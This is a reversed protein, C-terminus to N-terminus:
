NEGDENNEVPQEEANEDVSEPQDEPVETEVEAEAEPTQAEVPENVEEPVPQEEADDEAIDVEEFEEKKLHLKKMYRNAKQHNYNNKGMSKERRMKKLMDKLLLSLMAIILAVVLLISSVLLWVTTESGGSGKNDDGGDTNDEGLDIAQDIVSYDAFVTYSTDDTIQLYALQESYDNINYNYGTSNKDATEKNFPKFNASDYLSYTYYHAVYNKLVPYADIDAQSLEGSALYKDTLEKYYNINETSTAFGSLLGKGTLLEQYAKIIQKEYYDNKLADDSVTDYSYDFIVVSNETCGSDLAQREGSWLELRYSKNESGAHLVFNVTIWKGANDSNGEIKVVYNEDIDSYGKIAYATDFPLVEVPKVDKLVYYYKGNKYEYVKTGDGTVLFCNAETKDAKYYTQGKILDNYAVPNGDKDFYKATADKYLKTYNYVNARPKGEADEYLGDDRLTYLINELQEALNSDKDAKAKLVNGDQDYYFTYSPTKFTLLDKNASTDTLYVYAVAGASVKVKVSVTSYSDASVSQETGLFGYNKVQVKNYYVANKDFEADAAVKEFENSDNKIYCDKFNADTANQAVIYSERMKNVIVLPQSSKSGFIENWAADYGSSINKDFSTLVHNFWDNNKYNEFYKKNVLGAWDNTNSDDFPMSIQGNNKVYSSGGNVGTYNAPNAFNSEIRHIQNGYVDDFAKTEKDKDEGLTLSATHSGEGTYSFTTEDVSLTQMNAMSVWGARYSAADTDKIVTQGLSFDLSVTKANETENNIFVFCQVWGNFIDKKNEEEGVDTTIGTSDLTLTASNDKDASDKVTVTAATTGKMDSTKLWFSVITRSEKAISLDLSSTYAAGHTSLMLLVNNNAAADLKPLNEASKLAENLRAYFATDASKFEYGAKVYALLDGEVSLSTFNKPLKANASTNASAFGLLNSNGLTSLSSTYDDNDVTLGAKATSFDVANYDQESALDLLYSFSNSFRQNIVAGNREETDAVFIKESKDSLLTLATKDNKITQEDNKYNESDDLSVYKTVTLDDFFAYGEVPYSVDRLGTEGLGLKLTINSSAFDCANVYVSYQVWGNYDASAKGDKILKETNISTVAFDDLTSSGVTHTVTINAGRNQSVESGQSFKLYATKVWVSIEAATNAPLDITVSSYNQAIGNHATSYNHVMLVHSFPQKLEKDFFYDGYTKSNADTDEYVPKEDGNDDTYVLGGDKERVNYRTGPNEIFEKASKKDAEEADDKTNLAAYTDKYLLDSSKLGNYDVYKDKYDSDSYDLANNYDLKAALGEDTLAAWDKASTGIIGSQTYSSSGGRTWNDPTNILYVAKDPVNFFEFNGNKLLQTDERSTTKDPESEPNDKKCAAAIGTFSFAATCALAVFVYKLRRKKSSHNIM